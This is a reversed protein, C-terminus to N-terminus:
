GQLKALSASVKQLDHTRIAPEAGPHRMNAPENQCDRLGAMIRELRFELEHLGNQKAIRLADAMLAQAKAFNGFRASGIGAKLYFDALINPPMEVIRSGCQGRLREFGVRDRRYSACHMLDILANTVSDRAGGRRVVERLAREADVVRGLALLLTGLDKLTRMRASDDEYLQFAQWLTAAAEGLHGRLALTIGLAHRSHAEIDHGGVARADEALERLLREAEALNGRTQTSIARGVRSLLAAHVDGAAEALGAAALYAAEGEDFRNLKRNVRGIRLDAAIADSPRLREGGLRLLTELVDLAEELRLEDELYHAYALLAPVALQIDEEQFADWASCVLGKVHRTESCDPPLEHVLRDLAAYQYHFADRRARERDARLLDVLRLALFAAQAFRADRSKEPSQRAYRELFAAHAPNRRESTAPTM